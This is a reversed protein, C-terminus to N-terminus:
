TIKGDGDADMRKFIESKQEGGIKFSSEEIYGAQDTMAKFADFKNKYQDVLDKSSKAWADVM